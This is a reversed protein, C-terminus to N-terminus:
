TKKERFGRVFGGFFQGISRGINFPIDKIIKQEFEATERWSTNDNMYDVLCSIVQAETLLHKSIFHQDTNGEQFELSFGDPTWLTQMYNMEDQELILFPDPKSKIESVISAVEDTTAEKDLNLTPAIIKM